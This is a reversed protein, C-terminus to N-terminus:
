MDLHDTSLGSDSSNSSMMSQQLNFSNEAITIGNDDITPLFLDSGGLENLLDSSFISELFEDSEPWENTQLYFIFLSCQHCIIFKYCVNFLFVM